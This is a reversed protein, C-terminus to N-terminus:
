VALAILLTQEIAKIANLHKCPHRCLRRTDLLNGFFLCHCVKWQMQYFDPSFDICHDFAVEASMSPSPAGAPALSSANGASTWGDLNSFCLKSHM